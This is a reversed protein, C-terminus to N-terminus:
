ALFQWALGALVITTTGLALLRIRRTRRKNVTAPHPGLCHSAPWACEVGLFDGNRCNQCSSFPRM